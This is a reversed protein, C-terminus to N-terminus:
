LPLLSIWWVKEAGNKSKYITRTSSRQPAAIIQWRCLSAKNKSNEAGLCWANLHLHPNSHFVYIHSQKFLTTSVPLQFPIETLLEVLDWFWSMGRWGPAIVIILCHCQKVKQIVKHLLATPPCAYATLGMKDINLANLDWANPDPVLDVVAKTNM